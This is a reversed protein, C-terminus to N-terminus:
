RVGDCGFALRPNHRRHRLGISQDRGDSASRAWSLMVVRAAPVMFNGLVTKVREDENTAGMALLAFIAAGAAIENCFRGGLQRRSPKAVRTAAADLDDVELDDVAFRLMLIVVLGASSV